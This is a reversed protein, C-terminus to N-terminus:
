KNAGRARKGKSPRYGAPDIKTIIRIRVKYKKDFAPESAILLVDTPVGPPDFIRVFSVTQDDGLALLAVHIIKAATLAHHDAVHHVLQYFDLLGKGCCAVEPEESCMAYALIFNADYRPKYKEELPLSTVMANVDDLTQQFTFVVPLSERLRLVLFDIVEPEKDLLDLPANDNEALFSSM